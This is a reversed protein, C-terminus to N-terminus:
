SRDLAHHVARKILDQHRKDSPEDKDRACTSRGMMSTGGPGSLTGFSARRPQPCGVAGTNGEMARSRVDHSRSARCDDNLPGARVILAAPPPLALLGTTGSSGPLAGCNRFSASATRRPLFTTLVYLRTNSATNSTKVAHCQPSFTAIRLLLLSARLLVFLSSVASSAQDLELLVMSPM